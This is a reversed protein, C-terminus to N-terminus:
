HSIYQLTQREAKLSSLSGLSISRQTEITTSTARGANTLLNSAGEFVRQLSTSREAFQEARNLRFMPREAFETEVETASNSKMETLIDVVPRCIQQPQNECYLASHGVFERLM